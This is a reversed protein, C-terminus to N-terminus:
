KSSLVLSTLLAISLFSIFFVLEFAEFSKAMVVQNDAEGWKRCIPWGRQRERRSAELLGHILSGVMRREVM